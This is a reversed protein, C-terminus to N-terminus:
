AQPFGRLDLYFEKEDQSRMGYRGRMIVGQLMLDILGPPATLVSASGDQPLAVPGHDDVAVTPKDGPHTHNEVWVYPGSDRLYFVHFATSEAASLSGDPNIERGIASAAFIMEGTVFNFQGLISWNDEILNQKQAHSDRAASSIAHKIDATLRPPTGACGTM